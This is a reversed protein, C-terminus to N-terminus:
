LFTGYISIITFGSKSELDAGYMSIYGLGMPNPYDIAEIPEIIGLGKPGLGTSPKWGMQMMMQYGANAEDIEPGKAASFL